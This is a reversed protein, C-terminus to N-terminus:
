QSAPGRFWEDLPVSFGRKGRQILREPILDSFTRTLMPKPLNNDLHHRLPIALALEVIRHDMLPSRCELGHAMSTIDVKTLLDCPLYTQLDCIMARSGAARSVGQYASTLFDNVPEHLREKMSASLLENRRRGDFCALWNIYRKQPPQRLIAMRFKLKALWTNEGVNGPLGQWLRNAIMSQVVNPVRDFPALREVTRYRPYGCFLEDGGDGTLAVKVHAATARALEFTPIASSDAFPEDFHWTLTKLLSASASSVQLRQHDTGLHKAMQAAEDSEDYKEVPFGMTFTRAPHPLLKQMVAVITSSDVGGSLFAGVPVDSRLRLRIAEYLVDRLEEQLDEIPRSSEADWDPQWYRQLSLNGNQYVAFHAPPLKCIGEFMTRPHPVYGYTLYQNLAEPDVKRSLRPVQLISKIESAFVLRGETQHYVLPKQGLRDRALLLKRQREDWIAFAFMGRLKEVCREGYQEYLHVITETDSETRFRHGRRILDQRLEQYNYIEGNFSIWVTRDENYIPQTGGEIDIIALRRHGLGVGEGTEYQQHFTGRGDPGRHRLLDTMRDLLEPEIADSPRVWVAGAIGCM